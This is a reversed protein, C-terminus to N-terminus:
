KLLRFSQNVGVVGIEIALPKIEGEESASKRLAALAHLVLEEMTSNKFEAM